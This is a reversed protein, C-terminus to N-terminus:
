ALGATESPSNNRRTPTPAPEPRFSCNIQMPLSDQVTTANAIPTRRLLRGTRCKLHVPTALLWSNTGLSEGSQDARFTARGATFRSAEKKEAPRTRDCGADPDVAHQRDITGTSRSNATRKQQGTSRRTNILGSTNTASRNEVTDIVNSAVTTPM